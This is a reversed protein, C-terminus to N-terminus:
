SYVNFDNVYTIYDIKQLSVGQGVHRWKERFGRIDGSKIRNMYYFRCIQGTVFSQPCLPIIEKTCVRFKSFNRNKKKM